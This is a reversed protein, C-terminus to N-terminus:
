CPHAHYVDGQNMWVDHVDGMLDHLSERKKLPFYRAVLEPIKPIGKCTATTEDDVGAALEGEHALTEIAVAFNYLDVNRGNMWAGLFACTLPSLYIAGGGIVPTAGAVNTATPSVTNDITAQKYACYVDVPKGAVYSAPPSLRKNLWFGSPAAVASAGSALVITGVVIAVLGKM